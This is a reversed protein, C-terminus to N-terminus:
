RFIQNLVAALSFGAKALQLRALDSNEAAYREPLARPPNPLLPKYVADRATRASDEAWDEPTGSALRAKQQPTFAADITRALVVPDRGLVSVVDDDWVHHLNTWDDGNILQIRNGGVDHDEGAHLPQRIDGAFHILFRLAEAKQSTGGQRLVNEDRLIQAVVCQDGPCDRDKAYHLDGDIELNVYHWRSTQPQSNRIEDAWNAYQAITVNAEGGLLAAVAGSAKPTLNMAAIYAV